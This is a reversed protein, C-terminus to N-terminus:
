EYVIVFDSYIGTAEKWFVIVDEVHALIPGVELKEIFLKLLSEEGEAVVAVSGDNMNKVTGRLGLVRAKRTAFDRYMVM